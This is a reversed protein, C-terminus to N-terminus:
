VVVDKDQIIYGEIIVVILRSPSNFRRLTLLMGTLTDFYLMSEKEAIAKLMRSTVVTTLVAAKQSNKDMIEFVSGGVAAAATSSCHAEKWRKIQWYGLLVGLENGTFM